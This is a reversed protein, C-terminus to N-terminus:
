RLRHVDFTPFEARLQDLTRRGREVAEDVEAPFRDRYSLALRVQRESLDTEAVMREVSGFDQYAAVVEWVDLATGIVWARREWDVGRFAVGPFLRAKLAESALAEVM